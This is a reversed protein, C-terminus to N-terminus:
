TRPRHHRHRGHRGLAGTADLTEFLKGLWRDVMTLKAGYQSRVLGTEEPSAQGHVRGAQGCGSLAAVAHLPRAAVTATCRPMPSPCMSPSMCTSPSSRCFSRSDPRANAGAMRQGCDDGQRPLFGGRRRLARCQLLLPPWLGAAMERYQAGMAASGGGAGAAEWFDLEHGRIFEAGQFSQVYGNASEEWYHYHDTVIATLYGQVRWCNRCGFTSPSSRDGLGGSCAASAPLSRVGRRCAPCAASSTTTSVGPRSRSLSSPEADQVRHRWLSSLANRNISDILVLIINM